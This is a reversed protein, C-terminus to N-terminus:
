MTKAFVKRVPKEPKRIEFRFGAPALERGAHVSVPVRLPTTLVAHEPLTARDIELEYDGERLNEFSFAGGADTTTYRDTPLLRILINEAPSSDPGRVAGALRTLPFVGLDTRAVRRPQVVVAGEGTAVDYEAPLEKWAISVKHPGEPVDSFRFRGDEGTCVTRSEDLSVPIGATFRVGERYQVGVFGEVSGALPIQALVYRDLGGDGLPGGWSFTKAIRFYFNWRNLGALTTAVGIGRGGLVFANELNVDNVLTYRFVDGTLNLTKTIALSAGATTTRLTEIAFVSENVLDKGGEFFAHATLRGFRAQGSGRAFISNRHEAGVISQARVAGAITFRRYSFHDEIEVSRQRNGAGTWALKMDRATVRLTHHGFPRSLSAAIQRNRSDRAEESPSNRATLAVFSVQGTASIRFPLLASAGVSQSASRLEPVDARRDLNNAYRSASAFM